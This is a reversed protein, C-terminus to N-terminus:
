YILISVMRSNFDNRHQDLSDKLGTFGSELSAVRDGSDVNSIMIKMKSDM